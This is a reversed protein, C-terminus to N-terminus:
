DTQEKMQEDPNCSRFREVSENKIQLRLVMHQNEENAVSMVDKESLSAERLQLLNANSQVTPLYM